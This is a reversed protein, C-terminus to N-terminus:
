RERSGWCRWRGPPYSGDEFGRMKMRMGMGMGVRVQMRKRRARLHLPNLPSRKRMGVRKMKRARRRSQPVSPLGGAVMTSRRRLPSMLTRQPARQQWVAAGAVVAVAVAVAVVVPAVVVGAAAAGDVGVGPMAIMVHQASRM